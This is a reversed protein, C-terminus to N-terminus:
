GAADFAQRIWSILEGDVEDVSTVAVKYQCMRGPPEAVLRGEAQLDKVNLGVEVRKQTPPGIMAFQKKRRLSIYAKKPAIEFDGFKNIEAMLADHIPRLEAKKGSYIQELPDEADAAPSTDGQEAKRYAHVLTNADGHGMGLDKKLMDRIQGHKELGSKRIVEFLEELSKGARTQINQLQTELAKDVVNM